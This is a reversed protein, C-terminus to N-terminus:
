IEAHAHVRKKSECALARLPKAPVEINLNDFRMMAHFFVRGASCCLGQGSDQLFRALSLFNSVPTFAVDTFAILTLAGQVVAVGRMQRAVDIESRLALMTLVLQFAALGAALWLAALGAEAIM